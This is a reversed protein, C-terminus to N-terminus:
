RTGNLISLVPHFWKNLIYESIYIIALTVMVLISYMVLANDIFSYLYKYFVPSICRLVIIHSCYTYFSSHVVLWNPKPLNTIFYACIIIIPVATLRVLYIYIDNLFYQNVLFIIAYIILFLGMAIFPHINIGKISRKSLLKEFIDKNNIALFSGLLFVPLWYFFSYYHVHFYINSLILSIIFGIFLKKHVCIYYIIPAFIMYSFLRIVYWLPGNSPEILKGPYYLFVFSKFFDYLTIPKVEYFAYLVVINMIFAIINWCLYPVILTLLRKKIKGSYMKSTYKRFFLYASTFFFWAMIPVALYQLYRVINFYVDNNNNAYWSFIRGAAHTMVIMIAAVFSIWRLKESFAKNILTNEGSESM